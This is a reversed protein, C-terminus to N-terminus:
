LYYTQVVAALSIVQWGLLGTLVVACAGARMRFPLRIVVLGVALGLLGIAPLLYRGQLFTGSGTILAQYGTVHLLVLLALATLGFFALLALHRPDRLRSLLFVVAIALAAAVATALPYM